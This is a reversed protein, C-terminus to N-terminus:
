DMLAYHSKLFLITCPFAPLAHESNQRYQHDFIKYIVHDQGTKISFRVERGVMSSRPVHHQLVKSKTKLFLAGLKPRTQDLTAAWPWWIGETQAARPQLWPAQCVWVCASAQTYLFQWAPKSGQGTAKPRLCSDNPSPRGWLEACILQAKKQNVVSSTKQSRSRPCDQSCYWSLKGVRLSLLFM